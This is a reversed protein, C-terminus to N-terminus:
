RGRYAAQSDAGNQGHVDHRHLEIIKQTRSKWRHTHHPSHNLLLEWDALLIRM